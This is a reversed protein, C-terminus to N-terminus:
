GVGLPTPKGCTKHLKEIEENSFAKKCVNKDKIKKIRLMPNKSIIEEITLWKFFTSLFRRKNDVTTNSVNHNLQYNSLHFRIDNTTIDCINKNIELLLASIADYYQKITTESKGELRLTAMYTKLIKENQNDQITLDTVDESIQYKHLLTTICMDFMQVDESKHIFRNAVMLIEKRLMEKM